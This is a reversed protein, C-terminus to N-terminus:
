EDSDNLFKKKKALLFESHMYPEKKFHACDHCERCLGILNDFDDAGGQSKYQIHHIDTAQKGCVECLIIDQEGVGWYKMYNKIHKKM